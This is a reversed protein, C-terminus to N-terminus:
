SGHIEKGAEQGPRVTRGSEPRTPLMGALRDLMTGWGDRHSTAAPEPLLAHVLHLRTAETGETVDPELEVTVLSPEDGTFPSAWTFVLRRPPEIEIYKGIHEIVTDGSRMVIRLAGGIRLDVEADVTGVPSMWERLREAQTWWSFVEAVPAPLLRRIEIVGPGSM